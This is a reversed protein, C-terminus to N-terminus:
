TEEPGEHCLTCVTRECSVCRHAPCTTHVAKPIDEPNDASRDEDSPARPVPTRHTHYTQTGGSLEISWENVLTPYTALDEQTPCSPSRKM